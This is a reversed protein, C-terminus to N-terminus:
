QRSNVRFNKLMVVNQLVSGRSVLLNKFDRSYAFYALRQSTFDTFQVPEGGALGQKWLNGVITRKKEDIDMLSIKKLRLSEGAKIFGDILEPCYTSGSGIVAVNIEKM